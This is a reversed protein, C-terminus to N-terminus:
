VAPAVLPQSYSVCALFVVTVLLGDATARRFQRAQRVAIQGHLCRNRFVNRACYGVRDVVRRHRRPSTVVILWDAIWSSLAVPLRLRERPVQSALPAWDLCIAEPSSDAPPIAADASSTDPL